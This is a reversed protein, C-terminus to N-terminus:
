GGVLDDAEKLAGAQEVLIASPQQQELRLL